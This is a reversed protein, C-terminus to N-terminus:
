SMGDDLRSSTMTVAYFLLPYNILIVIKLSNLWNM